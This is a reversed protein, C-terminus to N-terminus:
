PKDCPRGYVIQTLELSGRCSATAEPPSLRAEGYTHEKYTHSSQNLIRSLVTKNCRIVTATGQLVLADGSSPGRPHKENVDYAVNLYIM